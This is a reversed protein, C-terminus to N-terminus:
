RKLEQIVKEFYFGEQRQTLVMVCRRGPYFFGLNSPRGMSTINVEGIYEGEVTELEAKFEYTGIGGFGSIRVEKIESKILAIFEKEM